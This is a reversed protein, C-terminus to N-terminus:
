LRDWFRNSLRNSSTASATPPPQHRKCIGNFSASPTQPVTAPCRSPAGFPPSPPYRRRGFRAQGQTGCDWLGPQVHWLGLQTQVTQWLQLHSFIIESWRSGVEGFADSTPFGGLASYAEEQEGIIHQHLPPPPSRLSTLTPTLLSRRLAFRTSM